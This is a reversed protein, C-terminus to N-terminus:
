GRKGHIVEKLKAMDDENEMADIISILLRRRRDVAFAIGSSLVSLILFSATIAYGTAPVRSSPNPATLAIVGITVFMAQILTLYGFLILSTTASYERISNIRRVRLVVLDGVARRFIRGNYYLGPLCGFTWILEVISITHTLQM